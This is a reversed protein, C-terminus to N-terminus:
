QLDGKRVQGCDPLFTNIDSPEVPAARHDTMDPIMEHTERGGSSRFSSCLSQLSPPKGLPSAQTHTRM